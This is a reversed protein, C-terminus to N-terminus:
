ENLFSRSTPWDAWGVGIAESHDYVEPYWYLGREAAPKEEEVV